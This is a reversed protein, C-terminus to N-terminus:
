FPSVKSDTDLDAIVGIRYRLGSPTIVPQSLPYTSNYIPENKVVIHAFDHEHGFDSKLPGGSLKFFALTFLAIFCAVFIVPQKQFEITCNGLKYTWM